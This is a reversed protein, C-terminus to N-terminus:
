DLAKAIADVGISGFTTVATQLGDVINSGLNGNGSTALPKTKGLLTGALTSAFVDVGGIPECANNIFENALNGLGNVLATQWLKAPNIASAAAGALGSAIVQGVGKGEIAAKGAAIGGGVVGAAANIVWKGNLDIRNVPDGAAYRYLNLDGGDFVIPDKTTWRGTEPDYDRAGYRVLGTDASYIGGAFGFPQFGPNTDRIVNGWTDYEM